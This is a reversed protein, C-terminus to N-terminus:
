VKKIDTLLGSTLKKLLYQSPKDFLSTYLPTLSICGELVAHIDTGEADSGAIRERVLRYQKITGQIEEAVTNIHSSRALRTIKVARIKGFPLDPVNMNLFLRPFDEAAFRRVLAAAVRAGTEMGVKSFQFSSSSISLAPLGRTYGQMAAGVTGSIFVDEGYNPGPNIGSVVMNIDPELKGHGLIVCDSPTGDTMYATVGKVPPNFEKLHMPKFLSVATGIASRESDPAIVIVEAIDHLESVLTWLSEAKIGDDNTVLIKVNKTYCTLFIPPLFVTPYFPDKTGPLPLYKYFAKSYLGILLLRLHLMLVDGKVYKDIFAVTKEPTNNNPIEYL